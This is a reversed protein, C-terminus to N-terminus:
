RAAMAGAKVERLTLNFSGVALQASMKVPLRRGDDSLWITMGRGIAKGSADTVVPTIKLAQVSGIGTKVTERGGVTMRATYTTGSDSIAMAVTAGPRLDMTRLAYIASVADHTNAPIIKDQKLLSATRMEYHIRHAPQDFLTAKMRRRSNEQSFVSGRQPLLTYVDLLTDAKYYLSYLHSLLSTPRGEAVIYYAVSNYSAKKERVTVTANGATVFSSWSVDYSLSEGIRFPVPREVKPAPPPPVPRAPAAAKKSQPVKRRAPSRQQADLSAAGLLALAVGLVLVRKM